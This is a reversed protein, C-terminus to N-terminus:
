PRSISSPGKRVRFVEVALVGTALIRIGWDEDHNVSGKVKAELSRRNDVMGQVWFRLFALVMCVLRLIHMVRDDKLCCNGLKRWM